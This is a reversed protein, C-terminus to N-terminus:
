ATHFNSALLPLGVAQTRVGRSGTGPSAMPHGGREMGWRLRDPVLMKLRREQVIHCNSRARLSTSEM